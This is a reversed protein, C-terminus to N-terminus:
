DALQQNQTIKSKVAGGSSKILFNIVWQLTKAVDFAKDCLVKDSATRRPLEKFDGYVM